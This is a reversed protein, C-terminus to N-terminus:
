TLGRLILFSIVFVIIVFILITVYYQSRKTSLNEQEPGKELSTLNSETLASDFENQRSKNALQVIAIEDLLSKIKELIVDETVGKHYLRRLLAEVLPISSRDSFAKELVLMIEYQESNTLSEKELQVSIKALEDRPMDPPKPLKAPLPQNRPINQLTTSLDQLRNSNHVTYDVFHREQIANPFERIDVKELIVPLIIKTLKIGYEYEIKCPLSEKSNPTLAFVVADCWRIKELITPWWFDGGLICQDWWVDHKLEESLKEILDAVLARDIRRYSIFLKVSTVDDRESEANIVM